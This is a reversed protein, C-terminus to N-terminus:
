FAARKEVNALHPPGELAAVKKELEAVRAVLASLWVGFERPLGFAYAISVPQNAADDRKRKAEAAVADFTSPDPHVLHEPLRGTPRQAEEARRLTEAHEHLRANQEPTEFPM